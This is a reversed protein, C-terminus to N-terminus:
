QKKNNAFLVKLVLAGGGFIFVLMLLYEYLNKRQFIFSTGAIISAVILLLGLGTVLKAAFSDSNIFLWIIGVIFPVVVLGGSSLPGIRLSFFGTRVTVSSMFWYLGAVLMGLGALFQLLENSGKKM